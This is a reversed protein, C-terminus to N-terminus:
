ANPVYAYPSASGLHMKILFHISVGPQVAQLLQTRFTDASIHFTTGVMWVDRKAATLFAGFRNESGSALIDNSGIWRSARRPNPRAAPGALDGGPENRCCLDNGCQTRSRCCCLNEM